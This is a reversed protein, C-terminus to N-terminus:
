LEFDLPNVPEWKPLISDFLYLCIDKTGPFIQEDTMRAIESRTFLQLSQSEGEAILGWPEEATVFAYDLVTHFHTNDFPHTNISAPQPHVVALSIKEIRDKPQLVRLQALEYGSEESVEHDISQWPTEDLEVHGGFQLWKNLKKHMHLLLKPQDFDTRFIYAGVTLDHQGPEQHIHPM